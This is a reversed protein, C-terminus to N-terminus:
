FTLMVIPLDAAYETVLYPLGYAAYGGYDITTRRRNGNADRINTEVPRPNLMYNVGTNDQTWDTTTWKQKVGGSWIESLTTLGKQWGSTAFFEKYSTGDPMTAYRVGGAFDFSSFTTVAEENAAVLGEVDGNWNEAWDRRETFRPCDTQTVYANLPLNYSVQRREHGDYAYHAIRYVQGWSSYSFRYSSGDALSVQSLV